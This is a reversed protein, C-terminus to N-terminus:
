SAVDQRAMTTALFDSWADADKFDGTSGVDRLLEDVTSALEAAAKRLDRDSTLQSVFRQRADALADLGSIKTLRALTKRFETVEDVALHIYIELSDVSLHGTIERVHEKIADTSLLLRRLEDTTDLNHALILRVFLKTIFRHRMMHPSAKGKIGALLRIVHFEYTFTNDNLRKGTKESVFFPGSVLETPNKKAVLPNRFKKMYSELYRLHVRNIPCEREGNGKVTKFKILPMFDHDIREDADDLEKLAREVDRVDLLAEERRRLGVADFLVFMTLRRKRVFPNKTQVDAATKLAGLQSDNIPLRKHTVGKRTPCGPYWWKEGTVYRERGVKKKFVRKYAHIQGQKGVFNPRGYYAGVFELFELWVCVTKHQTVINRKSTRTGGKWVKEANLGSVFSRFHSNKLKSFDTM